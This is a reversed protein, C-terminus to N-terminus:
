LRRLLKTLASQEHASPARSSVFYAADVTKFQYSRSVRVGLNHRIMLDALATRDILSIQHPVREAVQRAARTFQSTTVMVGKRAHHAELAGVFNRVDAAQVALSTRYRKAQVYIRDLGLEDQRVVGDVGGDGSQGLREAVDRRRNGYGMAVLLDVILQEFFAPSNALIRAVLDKRLTEVAAEFADAVHDEHPRAPPTLRSVRPLAQMSGVPEFQEHWPQMLIDYDKSL